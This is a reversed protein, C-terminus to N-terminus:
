LLPDVKLENGSRGSSNTHQDPHPPKVM